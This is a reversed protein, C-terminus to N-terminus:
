RQFNLIYYKKLLAKDKGTQYFHHIGENIMKHLEKSYSKKKSILMYFSVMEMQPILRYSIGSAEYDYAKIVKYGVVAELREPVIECKGEKM